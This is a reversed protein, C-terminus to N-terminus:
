RLVCFENGEPDAMRVWGEFERVAVAGLGVLRAVEAAPDDAGLDLHVRNKAVKGEPVLVFFYRPLGPGAEVLVTPDDEPDDVGKERLRRLEAEDYLAVRYGDLVAAWFRALSAPHGSDFVIDHVRVM